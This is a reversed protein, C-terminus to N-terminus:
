HYKEELTENNNIVFNAQVFEGSLKWIPYALGTMTSISYIKRVPKSTEQIAIIVNNGVPAWSPAEIIYGTKLLIESSGDINMVGFYFKGNFIKVFAIKEFNPSISYYIYAGLGRSIINVEGNQSKAFIKPTGFKNSIYYISGNNGFTPHTNINGDEIISQMKGNRLSYISAQTGNSLSILLTKCDESVEPSSINLDEFESPLKVTQHFLTDANMEQINMTYSQKESFFIKEGGNCYTPSTILSTKKTYQKKNYRIDQSYLAQTGTEKSRETYMMKGLFFGFEGTIKLYIDNTINQIAKELTDKTFTHSNSLIGDQYLSDFIIYSITYHTPTEDLTYYLMYSYQEKDIVAFNPQFNEINNGGGLPPSHDVKIKIYPVKTFLWQTYEEITAHAVTRTTDRNTIVLIEPKSFNPEINFIEALTNSNHTCFFM